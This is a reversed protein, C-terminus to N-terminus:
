AFGRHVYQSYRLTRTNELVLSGSFVASGKLWVSLISRGTFPTWSTIAFTGWAPILATLLDNEASARVATINNSEVM